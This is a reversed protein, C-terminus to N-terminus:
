MIFDGMEEWTPTRYLEKYFYSLEWTKRNIGVGACEELIEYLDWLGGQLLRVLEKHYYNLFYKLDEVDDQTIEKKNMLHNVLTIQNERFILTFMLNGKNDRYEYDGLLVGYVKKKRKKPPTNDKSNVEGGKEIFEKISGYRNNIEKTVGYESLVKLINKLLASQKDLSIGGYTVCEFSEDELKTVKIVPKGSLCITRIVNNSM